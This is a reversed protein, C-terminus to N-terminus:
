ATPPAPTTTTALQDFQAKIAELGSLDIAQGSALAAQLAALEAAFNAQLAALDAQLGQVDANIEDQQSMLIDAKQHLQQLSRMIAANTIM